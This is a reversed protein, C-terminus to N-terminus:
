ELKRRIEKGSRLDRVSMFDHISRRSCSDLGVERSESLEGIYDLNNRMRGGRRLPGWQKVTDNACSIKLNM